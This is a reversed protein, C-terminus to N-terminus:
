EREQEDVFTIGGDNDFKVWGMFTKIPVNPVDTEWPAVIYGVAKALTPYAHAWKHCTGCLLVLV